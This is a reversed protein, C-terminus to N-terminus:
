DRVIITGSMEEHGSGCFNDCLFAYSGAVGPHLPVRTVQGPPLDLRVNMGPINLGHVFDLATLELVVAEGTKLEIRNPTYNFKKAVVKIVRPRAVAARAASGVVLTGAAALAAAMLQRRAGNM